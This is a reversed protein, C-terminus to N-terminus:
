CFGRIKAKEVPDSPFFKAHTPYIDDLFEVIAM